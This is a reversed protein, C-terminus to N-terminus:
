RSRGTGRVRQTRPVQVDIRPHMENSEVFGLQEYLPRRVETAHLAVKTIGQESMGHLITQMMRRAIGQRRHHAHTSINM